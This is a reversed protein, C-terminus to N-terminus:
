RGFKAILDLSIFIVAAGIAMLAIATFLEAKGGFMEVKSPDEAPYCIEIQDGPKLKKRTMLMVYGTYEVGGVKYRIHAHPHKKIQQTDKASYALEVSEVVAQGRPRMAKRIYLYLMFLGAFCLLAGFIM